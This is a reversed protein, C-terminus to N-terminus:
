SGGLSVGKSDSRNERGLVGSDNRERRLRLGVRPSSNQFKKLNLCVLALAVVVVVRVRLM